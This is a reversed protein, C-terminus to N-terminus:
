RLHRKWYALYEVNGAPGKLPSEMVGQWQLGLSESGFTRIEDVIRDRVDQNRVVGGKEVNERGAEFQPKILVVIRADPTLVDIIAPLVKTLSIFSVDVCALDPVADFAAPELYRANVNEMVVVREDQRLKWHLQGKGVDVCYVRSAGRQLLCDTFGGTSSGVDLCTCGEVKIGYAYLAAELKEGGRSAFRPGQIVECRCDPDVRQAPKDIVQDNVRIKGAMLLRRAQERSEVLGREVLLVDIRVKGM